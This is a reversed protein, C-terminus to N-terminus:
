IDLRNQHGIKDHKLRKEGTIQSVGSNCAVDSVTKKSKM